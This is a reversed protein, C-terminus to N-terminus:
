PANGTLRVESGCGLQLSALGSASAMIRMPARDDGRYSLGMAEVEDNGSKDEMSSAPAQTVCSACSGGTLSGL